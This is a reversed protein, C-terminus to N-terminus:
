LRPVHRHGRLAEEVLEVGRRVAVLRAREAHLTEVLDAVVPPPVEGALDARARSTARSVGDAAAAVHHGALWALLVPHRLLVPHGRYEPPCHDLLWNTASREWGPAGAPRVATPWGPPVARPDSV